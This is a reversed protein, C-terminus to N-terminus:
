PRINIIHSGPCISHFARNYSIVFLNCREINLIDVVGKVFRHGTIEIVTFGREIQHIGCATLEDHLGFSHSFPICTMQIQLIKVVRILDALLFNLLRYIFLDTCPIVHHEVMVNLILIRQNIHPRHVLPHDVQNSIHRNLGYLTLAVRHILIHKDHNCHHKSSKNPPAYEIEKKFPLLSLYLLLTLRLPLDMILLKLLGKLSRLNRINGLSREQRIHGM